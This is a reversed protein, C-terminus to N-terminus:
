SPRSDHLFPDSGARTRAAEFSTSPLAIGLLAQPVRAGLEKTDTGM